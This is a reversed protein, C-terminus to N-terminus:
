RAPPRGALEAAFGRLEPGTGALVVRTGAAVGNARAADISVVGPLTWGPVPVPPEFGRLALILRRPRVHLPAGAISAAVLLDGERWAGWVNTAARAPIPGAAVTAREDVLLVAAGASAAAGAAIVGAEGDGVVLIDCAIEEGPPATPTVDPDM